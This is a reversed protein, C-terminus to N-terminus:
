AGERVGKIWERQREGGGKQRNGVRSKGAVM